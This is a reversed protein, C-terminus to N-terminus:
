PRVEISRGALALDGRALIRDGEKLGTLVTLTQAADSNRRKVTVYRMEARNDACCSSRM